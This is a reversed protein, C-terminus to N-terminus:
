IPAKEHGMDPEGCYRLITKRAEDRLKLAIQWPDSINHRERIVAPNLPKGITVSIRGHHPLATDPRLISRTGRLAIPIVPINADVATIFAGMRFPLLGPMRTFTGEPYFLLSRGTGAVAAAHRADSLGRQKDMREVFETGIRRLFSHILPNQKLEAKAVFSYERPLAAVMVYSDLYSSHNVVYVCPTTEAPLNATGHVVIPIGTAHALTRAMIRMFRWRWRNSPLLMIAFFVLVAIVRFLTWAYVGYLISLLYRGLRYAGPILGSLALRTVQWWLAKQKQGIRGQEYLERSAARRIKGSSTKLVNGPGALVVEDPPDGILDTTMEIIQARLKEHIQPDKEHTEALIVLRETGTVSHSSGFVAVRGNRIGAINGVTEELEHPYINRGARIIIDKARGTIYLEGNAIYGLDGSDLWDGHFLAKTAEPNRYYGSTASPGQFEIRGQHREPLERATADVIRIQHGALPYGCSVFRLAHTDSPPAPSAQGNHMLDARRIRDIVPGRRLPPFTVGLSNEALGYVPFMAEKRFGYDGFRRCFREVTDPSVAEAGNFAVRWHSLDLGELSQEDIRTVCLQYAFNPAASITGRYRHMAWLWRQPRTLFSLPSMIVLHVAFYLSGLWAGILGMDHYLPLWSVFVDQSNAQIAEGDARINALLNAHSLIVGKPNGTSGSTYQLFAIDQAAVDCVHYDNVELALEEPTIVTHLTEINARLLRALPRAEPVTILMVTRCNSLITSQRRLHDELQSPRTPPYIPVPIGGAYLIGFFCFFYDESTPLMLSVTDGRLLGRAQLGAAIKLAGSKLQGYSIQPGEDTDSYIHIHNREPHKEAHWDLVDILTNTSAPTEEVESLTVDPIPYAKKSVTIASAGKIARLLDRPTETSAFVTEPLSIGFDHEIRSLLEVRGLSDIGLDRDLRSDLTVPQLHKRDPHIERSLAGVLQIIDNAVEDVGEQSKIKPMTPNNKM